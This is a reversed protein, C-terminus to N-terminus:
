VPDGEEPAPPQPRQWARYDPTADRMDAYLWAMRDVFWLKAGMALALGLATIAVDLEVLGWALVLVGLGSAATLLHPVTRHHAPIAVRHRALWVREGFVGHSAWNDTSRPAPFARPNIWAWVGVLAVPLLALWGLWVRSWIALVVLLAIPVRTWVSWPSAHRAWTADDMRFASAVWGYLKGGEAMM